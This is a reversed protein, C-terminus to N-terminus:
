LTNPAPSNHIPQNPKLPPLASAALPRATCARTVVLVAAAAAPSTHINREQRSL